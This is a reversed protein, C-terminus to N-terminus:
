GGKRRIDVRRMNARRMDARRPIAVVPGRQELGPARRDHLRHPQTLISVLFVIAVIYRVITREDTSSGYLHEGRGGDAILKCGRRLLDGLRSEGGRRIDDIIANATYIQDPANDLMRRAAARLGDSLMSTGIEDDAISRPSKGSPTRVPRQRGRILLRLTQPLISINTSDMAEYLPYGSRAIHEVSILPQGTALSGGM